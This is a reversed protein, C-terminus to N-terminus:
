KKNKNKLEKNNILMIAVAIILFWWSIAIALGICILAIISLIVVKTNKM